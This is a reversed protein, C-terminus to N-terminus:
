RGQCATFECVTQVVGLLCGTTPLDSLQVLATRVDRDRKVSTTPDDPGAVDAAYRRLCRTWWAGSVRRPKGCPHADGAPQVGPLAAPRHTWRAARAGRDDDVALFGRGPNQSRFLAIM